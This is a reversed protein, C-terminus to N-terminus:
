DKKNRISRYRMLSVLAEERTIHDKPRFYNNSGILIERDRLLYVYNKAWPSIKLDDRYKSEKYTQEELSRGM